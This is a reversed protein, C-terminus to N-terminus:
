RKERIKAVEIGAVMVAGLGRPDHDFTPRNFYFDLDYGMGTGRCIGHITGDEDIKSKLASWGKFAHEKFEEDIWGKRVGRAMGLVFMATCSTEEYSESHDLVQHWMGSVDQYRSLGDIHKQFIRLVREYQPHDEPLHTLAEAMAWCVWGNARGWFAISPKETQQFWGHYFLGADSDFLRKAFLLVQQAADDYYEYTETLKGVRVLFPVSMFLDDAWVTMPVPEPRCFTGDELRVQEHSVYAAVSDIIDRYTQTEERLYMELLPLCAAGTDDLMTRRFFKHYSGRYARLYHYQWEFYDLHEIMFDCSHRVFNLFRGQGTFDAVHLMGFMTGGHAYHWDLYSDRRYSSAPDIKLELLTRERQPRWVYVANGLTYYPKLEQEPPFIEDLATRVNYHGTPTFPGICLWRVSELEPAFPDITFEVSKNYDGEPTIPRFLFGWDGEASGAKILITNVGKKLHVRITDPFVFINYAIEKTESELREKRQSVLRDNCWIKFGGNCDLGFLVDRAEESKVYTLAYAIAKERYEFLAAFDVFEVGVNYTQPRVVLEFRSEAIIKDAVATVIEVPTRVDEGTCDVARHHLCTVVLAFCLFIRNSNIRVRM